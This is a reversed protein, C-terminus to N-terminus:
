EGKTNADIPFGMPKPKPKTKRWVLWLLLASLLTPFWLPILARSYFIVDSEPQYAFGFIRYDMIEYYTTVDKHDPAFHYWHWGDDEIKSPSRHEFLLSGSNIRFYETHNPRAGNGNGGTYHGGIVQFFSGAWAVVCLTLLTLALSRILWRRFM